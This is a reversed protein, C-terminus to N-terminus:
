GIVEGTGAALCYVCGDDSGVYVRDGAVAPAFRIPGGTTFRWLVKGTNLDLARVTDDASSGFFVRGGAVVPQPSHDFHLRNAEKGPEEWAPRPVQPPQYIWAPQLPVALTEESAGSRAADGKYQPWDAAQVGPAWSAQALLVGLVVAYSRSANM